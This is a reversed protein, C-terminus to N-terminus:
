GAPVIKLEFMSVHRECRLLRVHGFTRKRRELEQRLKSEQETNVRCGLIIEQISDGSIDLFYEKVGDKSPAPSILDSLFFVRRYEQEHRWEHSKTFLVRERQSVACAQPAFPDLKVRNKRYKVFGYRGPLDGGINEVNVGFVVGRHHNGYYSWMPINNPPKSFCLVGLQSSFEKLADMDRNIMERKSLKKYQSYHKPIASPLDKIFQDFSGAYSGARVM